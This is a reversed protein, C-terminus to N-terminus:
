VGGEQQNVSNIYHELRAELMDSITGRNIDLSDTFLTEDGIKRLLRICEKKSNANGNLSLVLNKWGQETSICKRILEIKQEESLTM